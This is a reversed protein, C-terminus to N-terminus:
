LFDVSLIWQFSQHQLQPELVKAVQYSSGVWQFLGQHQSFNLGHPSPPSLSHPPQIADSFWHVHIQASEPLHHLIPFASISWDMPDRFTPCLQAVSCCPVDWSLHLKFSGMNRGCHESFGYPCIHNPLQKQVNVSISFVSTNHGFGNDGLLQLHSQCGEPPIFDLTLSM